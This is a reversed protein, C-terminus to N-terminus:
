FRPGDPHGAHDGAGRQRERPVRRLWEGDHEERPPAEFRSIQNPDGHWSSSRVLPRPPRSPSRQARRPPASARESPIAM